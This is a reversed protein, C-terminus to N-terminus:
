KKPKNKTFPVDVATYMSPGFMRYLFANLISFVGGFFMWGIAFFLVIVRLYQVTSLYKVLASTLSLQYLSQPFRVPAQLTLVIEWGRDAGLQVFVLAASFAIIPVLINILYAIITLAKEAEEKKNIKTDELKEEEM